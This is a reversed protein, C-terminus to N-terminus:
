GDVEPIPSTGDNQMPTPAAMPADGFAPQGGAGGDISILPAGIESAVRRRSRFWRHPDLRSAAVIVALWLVFQVGLMLGRLASTHFRLTAAGSSPVDFAMTSGFASRPRLEVGDVSLRWGDDLPSAVSIVGEDVPGRAPGIAPAGAAFPEADTIETDAIIQDGAQHSVEQGIPGLQARVPIWATNEYVIFSLPRLLPQALDLQDDLADVLGDPIANARPTQSGHSVPIVIYRIGFPALLRGARLTTETAIADIPGRLDRESSSPPGAWADAVTVSTGDSLAYAIGPRYMWSAVPMMAPDGLWLVRFDGDDADTPLQGLVSVLTVRPTNWRGNTMSLAGPIVGVVIAATCLLGVPQRWGFGGARVDDQLAAVLCAASLALGVAVPALLVGPEPLRIPLGHHDDAVGLGLFTVVLAAARLAWTFRWSRAVVLAGVVPALLALALPAMRMSGLDFSALRRVGVGGGDVPPVGIISTWAGDGHFGASWPAHLVFAAIAAGLGCAAVTLAARWAGGALLTSIALVVAVVVAVASFAPTFASPLAVALILGAALRIRRRWPVTHYREVIEVDAAGVSEIGGLRRLLDVVWPTAAYCGLAAWRGQSIAVMSLPALAYVVIAAIRARVTPFLQALRWAGLYGVLLLGIVSLTHLLGMHFLTLVSAVAILGVGTPVAVAAGLGHPWWGSRYARLMDRPSEDFAVFQGFRPVGGSILQRSGIIVFLVLAVWVIAPASGATQRWRREVSGSPDAPGLERSRLYARLRASGRAQYGVVEGDPALRIPRIQGRRAAVRRVRPVLGVLSVLHAWALAATGTFLGIVLQALGLLTSQALVGPLRRRSTLTAVTFARHRAALGRHHLDPRRRALEGRHRAVAGPVFVVRAGGLHARWCLEVNEGHFDISPSFGGLSRFLDARMLLCAGDLAMVERVDDHQQQDAEGPEILPDVEGFRDVALGVSRLLRPAAWDVIKPGVIGANSRYLEEVMLRIASPRLAVDDHLFCFFGQEGEVLQMVRNAAPGYGPNGGLEHVFATPLVARIRAAVQDPTPATLLFLTRLNGYDQARLARLSEDFWPGPDHVVVVAVVPPTGTTDM